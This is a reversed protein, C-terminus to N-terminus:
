PLLEIDVRWHPTQKESNIWKAVIKYRDTRGTLGALGARRMEKLFQGDSDHRYKADGFADVMGAVREDTITEVEIEPERCATYFPCYDKCWIRPRDKSAEEGHKVAYLVDALWETAEEIVTLSFPEQEVHVN